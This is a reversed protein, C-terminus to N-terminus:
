YRALWSTASDKDPRPKLILGKASLNEGEVKILSGVRCEFVRNRLPCTGRDEKTLADCIRAGGTALNLATIECLWNGVRKCALMTQGYGQSPDKRVVGEGGIALVRALLNGGHPSSQVIEIGNARCLEFRMSLRDLLPEKRVDQGAMQVCDWAIFEGDPMKEGALIGGCVERIAFEGDLKEEYIAGDNGWALGVALPVIEKLPHEIKVRAKVGGLHETLSM